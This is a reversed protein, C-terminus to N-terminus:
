FRRRISKWWSLLWDEWSNSHKEMFNGDLHTNRSNSPRQKPGKLSWYELMGQTPDFTGEEETSRSQRPFSAKSHQILHPQRHFGPRGRNGGNARLTIQVIQIVEGTRPVFSSTSFKHISEDKLKGMESVGISIFLCVTPPSDAIWWLRVHRTRKVIHNEIEVDCVECMRM